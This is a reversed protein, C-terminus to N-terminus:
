DLSCSQRNTRCSPPWRLSFAVNRDVVARAPPSRSCGGQPPRPSTPRGRPARRRLSSSGGASPRVPTGRPAPSRRAVSGSRRPRCPPPPASSLMAAATEAVGCRRRAGRWKPVVPADVAVDCFVLLASSVRSAPLSLSRAPRRSRTPPPPACLQMVAAGRRGQMAPPGVRWRLVIRADVADDCLLQRAAPRPPALLSRALEVLALRRLRRRHVLCCWRRVEDARCQRRAGGGGCSMPLTSPKTASSGVLRPVRPLPFRDRWSDWVGRRLNFCLRNFNCHSM